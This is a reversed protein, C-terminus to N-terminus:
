LGPPQLSNSVVSCACVQSDSFKYLHTKLSLSFHWCKYTYAATPLAALEHEWPLPFAEREGEASLVPNLFWQRGAARPSRRVRFGGSFELALTNQPSGPSFCGTWKLWYEEMVFPLQRCTETSKSYKKQPCCGVSGQFGRHRTDLKLTHM